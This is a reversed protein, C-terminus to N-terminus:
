TLATGHPRSMTNHRVFTESAGYGAAMAQFTDLAYLLAPNQSLEITPIKIEQGLNVANLVTIENGNEDEYTRDIRLIPKSKIFCNHSKVRRMKMRSNCSKDVINNRENNALLGIIFTDVPHLQELYHRDKVLQKLPFTEAIRKNRLILVAMVCQKKSDYYYGDLKLYYEWYGDSSKSFRGYTNKIDGAVKLLGKFM